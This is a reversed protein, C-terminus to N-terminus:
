VDADRALRILRVVQADEISLHTRFSVNGVRIELDEPGTVGKDGTIRIPIDLGELYQHSFEPDHKAMNRLLPEFYQNLKEITAPLLERKYRGPMTDSGSWQGGIWQPHSEINEPREPELAKMVKDTLPAGTFDSIRKIFGDFGCCLQAYTAVVTEPANELIWFLNDYFNRPNPSRIRDLVWNDIGLEKISKIRADKEEGTENERPHSFQWFYENCIRDRPDRYNVIFKYNSLELNRNFRFPMNYFLCHGKTPPVLKNLEEASLDKIVEDYYRRYILQGNLITNIIRALSTTASTPTTFIFITKQNM